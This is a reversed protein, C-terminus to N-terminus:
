AHNQLKAGKDLCERIDVCQLHTSLPTVPGFFPQIQLTDSSQCAWGRDRDESEEANREDTFRNRKEEAHGWSCTMSKTKNCKPSSNPWQRCCDDIALFLGSWKPIQPIWLMMVNEDSLVPVAQNRDGAITYSHRDKLTNPHKPTHSHSINHGWVMIPRESYSDWIELRTLLYLWSQGWFSSLSPSIVATVRLKVRQKLCVCVHQVRIWGRHWVALNGSPIGPM